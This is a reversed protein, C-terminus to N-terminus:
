AAAESEPEAHGNVYGGQQTESPSLPEEAVHQMLKQGAEILDQGLDIFDEPKYSNLTISSVETGGKDTEALTVSFNNIGPLHYSGTLVVRNHITLYM